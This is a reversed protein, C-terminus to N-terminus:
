ATRYGGRTAPTLVRGMREALLTMEYAVLGLDVTTALVALSAGDSISIVVLVGRDMEVVAQEVPGGDFIRSAGETLSALGSTIAALQEARERPFDASRALLLGDSSVAVAHVADPVREVLNTVLWDLDHVM